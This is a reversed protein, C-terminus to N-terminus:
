KIVNITFRTLSIILCSNCVSFSKQKSFISYLFKNGRPYNSIFEKIDEQANTINCRGGGTPLLTKLATNKDLDLSDPNFKAELLSTLIEVSTNSSIAAYHM